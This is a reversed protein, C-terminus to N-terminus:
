AASRFLRFDAANRRHLSREIRFLIHQRSEIEQVLVVLFSSCRHIWCFELAHLLRHNFRKSMKSDGHGSAVDGFPWRDRAIFDVRRFAHAYVLDHTELAVDGARGAGFADVNERRNRALIGDPDLDRIRAFHFYRQTFKELGRVPFFCFRAPFHRESEAFINVTFHDDGIERRHRMQEDRSCSAAAFAHADVRQHRAHEEAEGRFFQAEDHDIRLHDFHLDVVRQRM